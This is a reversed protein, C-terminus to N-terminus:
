NLCIQGEGLERWVRFGALETREWPKLEPTKTYFSTANHEVWQPSRPFRPGPPRAVFSANKPVIPFPLRPPTCPCPRPSHKVMSYQIDVYIASLIANQAPILIRATASLTMIGSQSMHHHHRWVYSSAAHSCVYM